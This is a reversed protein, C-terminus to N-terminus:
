CTQSLVNMQSVHLRPESPSLFEACPRLSLIKLYQKLIHLNTIRTDSDMHNNNIILTMIVTMVTNMIVIM